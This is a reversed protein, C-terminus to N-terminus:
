RLTEEDAQANPAQWVHIIEMTVYKFAVKSGVM